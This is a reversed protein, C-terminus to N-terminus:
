PVLYFRRYDKYNIDFGIRLAYYLQAARKLQAETSTLALQRVAATQRTKKKKGDIFRRFDWENLENYKHGKYFTQGFIEFNHLAKEGDALVIQGPNSYVTYKKRLEKLVQRAKTRTCKLFRAIEKVTDSLCDVVVKDGDTDTLVETFDLEPQEAETM